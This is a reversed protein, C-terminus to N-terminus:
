HVEDICLYGLQARLWKHFQFHEFISSQKYDHLLVPNSEIFCNLLRTEGLLRPDDIM